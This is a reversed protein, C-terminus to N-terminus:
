TEKPAGIEDLMDHLNQKVTKNKSFDKKVIYYLAVCAMIGIPIIILNLIFENTEEFFTSGIIECFAGMIISSMITALYYVAIAGIAYGWKNKGYLDALEYFPKGIFYLLVFGLM